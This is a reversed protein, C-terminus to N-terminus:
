FGLISGLLERFIEFIQVYANDLKGERFFGVGRDPSGIFPRLTWAMQIGVFAYLVTWVRLLLRHRFDRKVLERAQTAFRLQAVTAATLFALSNWFQVLQYAEATVSLNILATIPALAALIVAVRLQYGLLLSLVKGFDAGVGRLANLVYFGPIALFMTCGFLIPVKITGFVVLPLRTTTLSFTAMVAGYFGGCIFFVALARGRSLSEPPSRLPGDMDGGFELLHRRIQMM